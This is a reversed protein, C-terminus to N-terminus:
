GRGKQKMRYTEEEKQNRIKMEMISIIDRRDREDLKLFCRLFQNESKGWEKGPAGEEPEEMCDFLDEM